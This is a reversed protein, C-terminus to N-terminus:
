RDWISNLILAALCVGAAVIGWFLFWSVTVISFIPLNLLYVVVAIVFIIASITAVSGCLREFQQDTM